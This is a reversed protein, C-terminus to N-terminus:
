ETALEIEGTGHCVECAVFSETIVTGEGACELCTNGLLQGTGDCAACLISETWSSELGTANCAPCRAMNALMLGATPYM